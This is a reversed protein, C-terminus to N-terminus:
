TIGWLYHLTVVLTPGCKDRRPWRKVKYKDYVQIRPAYRRTEDYVVGGRATVRGVDRTNACVLGVRRRQREELIGRQKDEKYIRVLMACIRWRARRKADARRVREERERRQPRLVIKVYAQMCQMAHMIRRVVDGGEEHVGDVWREVPGVWQDERPLETLQRRKEKRIYIDWLVGRIRRRAAGRERQRAERRREGERRSEEDRYLGVILAGIRRIARRRAYRGVVRQSVYTHWSAFILHTWGRHKWREQRKWGHPAMRATWENLREIFLSQISMIVQTMNTNHDKDHREEDAGWRVM